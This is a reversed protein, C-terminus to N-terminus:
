KTITANSLSETDQIDVLFGMQEIYIDRSIVGKVLMQEVHYVLNALRRTLKEGSTIGQVIKGKHYEMGFHICDNASSKLCDSIHILESLCMTLECVEPSESILRQESM